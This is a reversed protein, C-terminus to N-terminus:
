EGRGPRGRMIRRYHAVADRPAGDYVVAGADIVITRATRLAADLDHTVEIVQQPLAGLLADVHRRWALDLLTTPEDAVLISPKVALVGAIALLQKQGGSLAYVSVNARDALGLDDLAALAATARADRGKMSRRLSLVVDEIATPMILQAGPDTFLFAVDRRVAATHRRTDRGNVVVRGTAPMALGNILRALTSKGSGNAGIISVHGESITLTTPELIRAGGPAVVSAERFEIM